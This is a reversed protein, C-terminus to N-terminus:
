TRVCRSSTIRFGGWGAGIEWVLRRATNGRFEQLVAGKDLAILVEFFKLTDINFLRGDVEFRIRWARAMGGAAPATQTVCRWSRPLKARARTKQSRYDVRLGTIWQQRRKEIVLPSADLMYEFASLEEEMPAPVISPRPPSKRRMDAVTVRM